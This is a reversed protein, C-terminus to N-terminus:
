EEGAGVPGLRGRGKERLRPLLRGSGPVAGCDRGCGLCRGLRSSLQAHPWYWARVRALVVVVLWFGCACAGIGDGGTDGGGLGGAAARCCGMICWPM